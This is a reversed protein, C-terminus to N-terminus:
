EDDHRDIIEWVADFEPVTDTHAADLSELDAVLGAVDAITATVQNDSVTVSGDDHINAVFGGNESANVQMSEFLANIRNVQNQM